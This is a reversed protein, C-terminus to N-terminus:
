NLGLPTGVVMFLKKGPPLVVGPLPLMQAALRCLMYRLGPQQKLEVAWDAGLTM